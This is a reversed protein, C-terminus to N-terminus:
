KAAAVLRQIKGEISAIRTNYRDVIKYHEVAFEHDDPLSGFIFDTVVQIDFRARLAARDARYASIAYVRSTGLSAVSSTTTKSTGDETKNKVKEEIM